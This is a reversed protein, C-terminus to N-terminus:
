PKMETDLKLKGAKARELWIAAELRYYKAQSLDELAKNGEDFREQCTDQVKKMRGLHAELAILQDAKKDTAEWEAKLLRKSAGFFFDLTGRGAEFQKTRVDLEDKAAEIRDKLLQKLKLEAEYKKRLDVEDGRVEIKKKQDELLKTKNGPKEDTATAQQGPAKEDKSSNHGLALYGGVCAGVVVTATLGLALVIKLTNMFMAQQVGKTLTFVSASIAGGALGKGAAVILASQVTGHILIPPVAAKTVTESLATALGAASLTIGKRTLRSRLMERARSLRSFITGSACGLQRAAEENTKGSMYCLIVPSRYKAPLRNVEEDLMDKLDNTTSERIPKSAQISMAQTEHFHRQNAMARARIATRYAVGYLWPTLAAPQRLSGAKRVLVLFVAQFADEADHPNQLIRRCVGFVMPGHKEVITAFAGEDKQLAFRRLLEEDSREGGSPSGALRRLYRMVPNQQGGVM